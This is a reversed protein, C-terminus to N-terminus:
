PRPARGRGLWKLEDTAEAIPTVEAGCGLEVSVTDVPLGFEALEKRTLVYYPRDAVVLYAAGRQFVAMGIHDELPPGIFLTVNRRL